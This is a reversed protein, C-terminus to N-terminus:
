GVPTAYVVINDEYSRISKDFPGGCTILVLRPPGTTTFLRAPLGSAKVLVERATVSYTVTQHNETTVIVKDGPQLNRLYFLAGLGTVASDVHGDVVVSGADSGAMAGGIWWGVHAPNTPVDLEGDVTAVHEAPASVNLSPISISAVPAPILGDAAGPGFPGGGPTTSTPAGSPSTPPPSTSAATSPASSPPASSLPASASAAPPTGFARPTSRDHTLRYAATGALAVGVVAVM